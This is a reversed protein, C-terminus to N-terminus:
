VGLDPTPAKLRVVDLEFGCDNQSRNRGVPEANVKLTAVVDKLPEVADQVFQTRAKAM